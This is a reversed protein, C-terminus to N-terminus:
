SDRPSPSTYLLCIMLRAALTTKGYGNSAIIVTVPASIYKKRFWQLADYHFPRGHILHHGVPAGHAPSNGGITWPWLGPMQVTSGEIVMGLARPALVRGGGRGARGRKTVGDVPGDAAKAAAVHLRALQKGRWWRLPGVASDRERTYKAILENIDQIDRGAM